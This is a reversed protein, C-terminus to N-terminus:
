RFRGPVSCCCGSSPAACAARLAPSPLQLFVRVVGLRRAAITTIVVCRRWGSAAGAARRLLAVVLVVATLVRKRLTESVLHAARRQTSAGNAAPLFALAAELDACSRIGAVPAPSICSRMSRWIGSCSFNGVRQEGGTRILLDAEPLDMPWGASAGRPARQDGGSAASAPAARAGSETRGARHGLARRLEGGVQLQLGDNAATHADEAGRRPSQLRVSLSRRAGIFRVRVNKAQLEPSRGISAGRYFLRMCAARGRRRPVAGTRARSRSCRSPRSGASRASVSACRAGPALGAKYVPRADSRTAAAWRGNGDMTIRWTARRRKLTAAAMLGAHGEKRRAALLPMWTRWAQRHAEAGRNRRPARRGAVRAEGQAPGQHRNMVDRRVNRVAVRANEADHRLVQHHRASAAETLPPM